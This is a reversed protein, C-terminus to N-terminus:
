TSRARGGKDSGLRSWWPTSDGAGTYSRRRSRPSEGSGRHWQGGACMETRVSDEARDAGAPHALDIARVVVAEAAVDGDFYQRRGESLVGVPARSELAFGPGIAARECGFMRAIWSM